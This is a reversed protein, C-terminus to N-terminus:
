AGWVTPTAGRALVGWAGGMGRPIATAARATGPAAARASAAAPREEVARWEALAQEAGARDRHAIHAHEAQATRCKSQKTVTVFRPCLAALQAAFGGESAEGGCACRVRVAAALATVTQAAAAGVADLELMAALVEAEFAGAGVLWPTVYTSPAGGRHVTVVVPSGMCARQLAVRPRPPLPAACVHAAAVWRLHPPVRVNPGASRPSAGAHPPAVAVWRVCSAVDAEFTSSPSILPTAPEAAAGGAGDAAGVETTAALAGRELRVRLATGLEELTSGGSALLVRLVSREWLEAPVAHIGCAVSTPLHAASAPVNDADGGDSPPAASRPSTAPMGPAGDFARCGDSADASSRSTAAAHSRFSLLSAHAGAEAGWITSGSSALGAFARPLALRGLEPMTAMRERLTALALTAALALPGVDGDLTLGPSGRLMAAVRFLERELDHRPM